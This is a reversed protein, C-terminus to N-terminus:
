GGIGVALGRQGDSLSHRIANVLRLQAEAPGQRALEFEEPSLPDILPNKDRAVRDLFSNIAGGFADLEAAVEEPAVLSVRM